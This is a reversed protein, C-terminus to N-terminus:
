QLWKMWTLPLLARNRVQAFAFLLGSPLLEGRGGM